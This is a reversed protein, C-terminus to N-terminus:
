RQSPRAPYPLAGRASSPAAGAEGVDKLILPVFVRVPERESVMAFDLDWRLDSVVAVYALVPGFAKFGPPSEVALRYLGPYLEFCYPEHIGDTWYEAVFGDYAVAVIIHSGALLPEGPDRREDRDLDDFVSVCVQGPVSTATPTVVPTESPTPTLSPTPTDSAVPTLTTSPTHSPVPTLSPILTQSPTATVSPVPTESPTATATASPTATATATASPTPTTPVSIIM